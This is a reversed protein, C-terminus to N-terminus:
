GRPRGGPPSRSGSGAPAAPSPGMPTGAVDDFIRWDVERQGSDRRVVSIDGTAELVVAIVQDYTWVNAERLKAHLDERTVNTARLGAELIRGDLMLYRPSNDALAQAGPLRKRAAAIALKLGLLSVLGAIAIALSPSPNLVASALLSGLAITTVFDAGSMKSLSRLGVLRIMLLIALQLVVATLLVFGAEDWDKIIWDAM